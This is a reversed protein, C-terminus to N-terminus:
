KGLAQALLIEIRELRKKDSETWSAPRDADSPDPVDVSVVGGWQVVLRAGEPLPKLPVPYAYSYDIREDGGLAVGPPVNLVPLEKRPILITQVVATKADEAVQMGQYSFNLGRVSDAPLVWTKVPKNKDFPPPNLGAARAAEQTNYTPVSYFTDLPLMAM